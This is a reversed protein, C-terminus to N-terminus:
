GRCSAEGRRRRAPLCTGAFLPKELRVQCATLWSWKVRAFAMREDIRLHCLDFAMGGQQGSVSSRTRYTRTVWPGRPGDRDPILRGARRDCDPQHSSYDWGREGALRRMAWRSRAVRWLILTLNVLM